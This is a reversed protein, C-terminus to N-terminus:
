HNLFFESSNLLAWFVDALAAKSDKRPGGADVYATLRRLEEARPARSLTALYLAEVRGATNLFPADVIAALTMSKEIDTVDATFRGNMLSLAQLISTQYETRKDGANSFRALFDARINGGGFAAFQRQNVPTGDRWGTAITLSDFLQEASMGKLSMRAFAQPEEQSAHSAASTLQYARSGTIARILFKVDYGAAIFQRSLENLLEPRAPRNEDGMEDIPEVFGVGFFHAWLRNVAAKAFFPNDAATIWEALVARTSTGTKYVPKSGDLFLTPVTKEKGPITIERKDAGDIVQGAFGRQGQQQLGAFFAALNWFQEQKWKAFPHNHCQACELKVGLFLRSTAAALNEPKNEAATYFALPNAQPNGFQQPQGQRASSATLLETVLKDYPTNAAFKQRLWAEFNGALFRIQINGGAEPLIADRYVAAFHNAFGPSALLSEVLRARKGASKDALFTRAEHVTPIRGILDLSVRRLFEADDAVAAPVVGETAWGAALLADIKEALREPSSAPETPRTSRASGAFAAGVCLLVCVLAPFRSM